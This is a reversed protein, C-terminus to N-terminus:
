GRPGARAAIVDCIHQRLTQASVPKALFADVGAKRAATENESESYGTLMIIPLNRNPSDDASRILDVLMLGDVPDMVLDTIMVDIPNSRLEKLADLANTARAVQRIGLGRLMRSVMVLMDENDDVLLIRTRGLDQDRM